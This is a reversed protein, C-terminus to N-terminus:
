RCFDAILDVYIERCREVSALDVWEEIAHAGAGSPGLVVTPIGHDGFLASDM